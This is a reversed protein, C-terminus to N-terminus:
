RIMRVDAGVDVRSWQRDSTYVPVGLRLALALCARDGLSLGGARTSPYLHAAAVADAQGFPEVQVGLTLLGATLDDADLNLAILKQHVESWNLASVRAGDLLGRVQDAGPEQRFYALLAAADLVASM